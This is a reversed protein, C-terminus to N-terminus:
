MFASAHIGAATKFYRRVPFPSRLAESLLCTRPFRNAPGPGTGTRNAAEWPTQGDPVGSLSTRAIRVMLGLFGCVWSSAGSVAAAKARRAPSGSPGSRLASRSSSTVAHSGM